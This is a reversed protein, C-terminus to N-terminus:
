FKATKNKHTIDWSVVHPQPRHVDFDRYLWRVAFVSIVVHLTSGGPSEIYM